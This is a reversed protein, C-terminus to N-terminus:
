QGGESGKAGRAEAGPSPGGSQTGGVTPVGPTSGVDKPRSNDGGTQESWDTAEVRTLIMEDYWISGSVLRESASRAALTLHLSQARCNTDPVTFPVVFDTWTRVTGLFMRSEGIPDRRVGACAISWQLGRRGILEGKYKGKLEYAGPALMLLQTVGRFDARGPGFELSLAYEGDLEPRLAIDTTVGSSGRAILWDFPLGSPVTEFSGNALFGVRALQEPQLFQLWTYYALEYFKRGILFDLYGRLDALTPPFSSEKVSLLLQLLTRADTMRSPLHSFLSSRWPPDSLLMTKLAGVANENESEAMRVLVPLAQAIFQPRKRLFGDAYYLATAYDGKEFSKFMLWYSAVTESWSRHTAAQMLQAAKTDDGASDSLQGLVRLARANLPDHILALEAEARARNREPEAVSPVVLQPPANPRQRDRTDASLATRAAQMALTAWAALGDATTGIKTASPQQSASPADSGNEIPAPNIREDALTVLATPETSNLRLAMEPWDRALFAAFSKAVVQWLLIGALGTLLVTRLWRFSKSQKIM